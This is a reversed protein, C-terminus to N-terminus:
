RASAPWAPSMMGTMMVTYASREKVNTSLVGGADTSSLFAAPMSFPDPSGFLFFTPCTVLLLDLLDRARLHGIQRGRAELGRHARDFAGRAAEADVTTYPIM